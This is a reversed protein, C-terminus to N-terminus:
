WKEKRYRISHNHEFLKETKIMEYLCHRVREVFLFIMVKIGKLFHGNKLFKLELLSVPFKVVEKTWNTLRTINDWFQLNWHFGLFQSFLWTEALLDLIMRQLMGWWWWHDFTMYEYGKTVLPYRDVSLFFPSLLTRNPLIISKDRITKIISDLKRWKLITQVFVFMSPLANCFSYMRIYVSVSTINDNWYKM